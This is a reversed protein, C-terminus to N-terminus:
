VWRGAAPSCVAALAGPRPPSISATSSSPWNMHTTSTKTTLTAMGEIARSRCADPADSCSTTPPYVIAYAISSIVPARSPSRQPRRRIYRAPTITKVEADRAQASAGSLWTSTPKLNTWPAPAATSTGCTKLMM